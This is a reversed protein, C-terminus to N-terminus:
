HNLVDTLSSMSAAIAIRKQQALKVFENRFYVGQKIARAEDVLANCNEDASVKDIGNGVDKSTKAVLQEGQVSFQSVTTM